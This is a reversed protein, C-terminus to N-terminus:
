FSNDSHSQPHVVMLVDTLLYNLSSNSSHLAAAWNMPCNVNHCIEFLQCNITTTVTLRVLHVMVTMPMMSLGLVLPIRRHGISVRISLSSNLQVIQWSMVTHTPCVCIWFLPRTLLDIEIIELMRSVCVCSFVFLNWKFCFLLLLEKLAFSFISRRRHHLRLLLLLEAQNPKCVRVLCDM